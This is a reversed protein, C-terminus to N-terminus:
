VEGALENQLALEGLCWSKHFRLVSLRESGARRTLFSEGQLGQLGLSTIIEETPVFISCEPHSSATCCTLLLQLSVQTMRLLRLSIFHGKLRSCSFWLLLFGTPSREAEPGGLGRLRLEEAALRCRMFTSTLGKHQLSEEKSWVCHVCRKLHLSWM